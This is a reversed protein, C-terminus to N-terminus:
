QDDNLVIYVVLPMRTTSVLNSVISNLRNIVALKM